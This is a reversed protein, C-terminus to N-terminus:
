NCGAFWAALFAFIDSVANIGDDNFDGNGAFWAALFAFIDSVQVVQNGDWDAL